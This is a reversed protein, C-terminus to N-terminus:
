GTPAHCAAPRGTHAHYAAPRGTPAHCTAPRGTPAHCSALISGRRRARARIPVRPLSRKPPPPDNLVLVVPLHGIPTPHTMAATPGAMPLLGLTSFSRKYSCLRAGLRSVDIAAGCYLLELRLPVVSDCHGSPRPGQALTNSLWVRSQYSHKKQKKKKVNM